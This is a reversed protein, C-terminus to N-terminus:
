SISADSLTVKSDLRNVIAQGRGGIGSYLKTM